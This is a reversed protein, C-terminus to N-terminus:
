EKVAYIGPANRLYNYYDMGYGFLYKDETELGIFDPQMPVKRDHLKNVLVATLVESAQKDKCYKVIEQLTVGEDFIDDIILVSRDKLSHSPEVKWEILGGRTEGKYRTAHIYDVQLPFHLRTLIHGAPVVAGTMVCLVLPNANSLRATIDGAMRDIAQQVQTDNYLCEASDSVRKIQEIDM